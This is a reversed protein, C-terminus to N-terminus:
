EPLKVVVPLWSTKRVTMPVGKVEHIKENEGVM